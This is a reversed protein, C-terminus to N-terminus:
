STSTAGTATATTVSVTEGNPASVPAAVSATAREPLDADPAEEPQAEKLKGFGLLASAVTFSVGAAIIVGAYV